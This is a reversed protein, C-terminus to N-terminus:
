ENHAVKKGKLNTIEIKQQKCKEKFKCMKKWNKGVLIVLNPFNSVSLFMSTPSPPKIWSNLAKV